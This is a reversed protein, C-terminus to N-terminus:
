STNPPAAPDLLVPIQRRSRRDASKTLCNPHSSVPVMESLRPKRRRAPGQPEHNSPQDYYDYEEDPTMPMKKTM